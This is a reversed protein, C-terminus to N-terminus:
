GWLILDSLLSPTPLGMEKKTEKAHRALYNKRKKDAVEQGEEEIYTAYDMYAVGNPRIGGISAIYKSSKDFVDIKKNKKVSPKITYGLKKAQAIQREKIKYAMKIYLYLLIGCCVLGVSYLDTFAEV